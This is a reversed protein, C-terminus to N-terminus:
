VGNDTMLLGRFDLVLVNHFLIIVRTVEGLLDERYQAWSQESWYGAVSTM